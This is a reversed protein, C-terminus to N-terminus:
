ATKLFAEIDAPTNLATGTMERDIRRVLASLVKGSGCEILSDVGASKMYLVSERWRVLGTVQEVLCRKIDAPNTVESALVNAVLLVQPPGGVRTFGDAAYAYRLRYAQQGLM